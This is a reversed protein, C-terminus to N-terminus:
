AMVKASMAFATQSTLSASRRGSTTARAKRRAAVGVGPVKRALATLVYDRDAPNTEPSLSRDDPM